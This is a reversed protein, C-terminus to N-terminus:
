GYIRVLLFIALLSFGFVLLFTILPLWLTVWRRKQYFSPDMQLVTMEVLAEEIFAGVPLQRRIHSFADQRINDNYISFFTVGVFEVFATVIVAVVTSIFGGVVLTGLLTFM